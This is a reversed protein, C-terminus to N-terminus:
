RPTTSLEKKYSKNISPDLMFSLCFNCTVLVTMVIYVLHFDLPFPLGASLSWAFLSGASIPGIMRSFAAVSQGLGLFGLSIENFLQRIQFYRSTEPTGNVRGLKDNPASNSVMINNSTFASTSFCYRMLLLAMLVVWALVINDHLNAVFPFFFMIPISLAM